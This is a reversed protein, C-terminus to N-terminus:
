PCIQRSNNKFEITLTGKRSIQAAYNFSHATISRGKKPYEKWHIFTENYLWRFERRYLSLFSYQRATRESQSTLFM